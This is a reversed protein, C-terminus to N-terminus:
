DLKYEGRKVREFHIQLTQRIKAKWNPNGQVKGPALDVVKNYIKDVEAQRNLNVIAVEVISKWTENDLKRTGVIFCQVRNLLIHKGTIGASALADSNLEGYAALVSPAGANFAAREGTVHYFHIRGKLFLISDAAQLVYNHFGARDTRAFILAIGNDHLAMKNMWADIENRTYPPNLWVRGNWPLLLGNDEITFHTKATDWPRSIPSCPDLDFEGLRDLLDPPTLWEDKTVNGDHSGVMGNSKKM